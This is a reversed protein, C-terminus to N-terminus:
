VEEMEYTGAWECGSEVAKALLNSESGGSQQQGLMAAFFDKYHYTIDLVHGHSTFYLIQKARFPIWGSHIHIEPQATGALTMTHPKERVMVSCRRYHKVAM